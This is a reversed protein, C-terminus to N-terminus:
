WHLHMQLNYAVPSCGGLTMLSLGVSLMVMVAPADQHSLAPIASFKMWKQWFSCFKSM